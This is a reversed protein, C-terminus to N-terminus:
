NTFCVVELVAGGRRGFQAELHPLELGVLQRGFEHVHRLLDDRAPVQAPAISLFDHPAPAPENAHRSAFFIRNPSRESERSVIAPLDSHTDRQAGGHGDKQQAEERSGLRGGDGVGGAVGLRGIM